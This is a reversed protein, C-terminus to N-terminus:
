VLILVIVTVTVQSNSDSDDDEGWVETTMREGFRSPQSAIALRKCFLYCALSNRRYYPVEKQLSPSGETTLSKRRLSRRLRWHQSIIYM